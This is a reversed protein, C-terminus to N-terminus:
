SKDSLKRIEALEEPTPPRANRHEAPRRDSVGEELDKLWSTMTPKNEPNTFQPVAYLTVGPPLEKDGKRSNEVAEMYGSSKRRVDWYVESSQDFWMIQGSEPDTFDTVLQYVDALIYDWDTWDKSFEDPVWEEGWLWENWPKRHMAYQDHFLMATPRQGYDKAARLVSLYPKQSDRGTLAEIL